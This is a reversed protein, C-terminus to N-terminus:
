RERTEQQLTEVDGLIDKGLSSTGKSLKGESTRAHMQKEEGSANRHVRSVKFRMFM